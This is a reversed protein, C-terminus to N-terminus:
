KRTEPKVSAARKVLESGVSTRRWKLHKLGGTRDEPLLPLLGLLACRLRPLSAMRKM